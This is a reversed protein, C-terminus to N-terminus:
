FDAGAVVIAGERLPAVGLTRYLAAVGALPVSRHARWASEVPGAVFLQETALVVMPGAIGMMTAGLNMKRDHELKGVEGKLLLALAIPLAAAGIGLQVGGGWMRLAHEHEADHKWKAETQQVLQAHPMGQAKRADHDRAVAEMGSPLVGGPLHVLQGIGEAIVSIGILRELPRHRRVLVVGAPLLTVGVIGGVLSRGRRTRRGEKAHLALEWELRALATDRDPTRSTTIVTPNADARAREAQAISTAVIVSTALLLGLVTQPVM